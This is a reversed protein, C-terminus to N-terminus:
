NCLRRARQDRRYPEVREILVRPNYFEYLERFLDEALLTDANDAYAKAM